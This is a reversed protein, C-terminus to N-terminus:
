RIPVTLIFGSRIGIYPAFIWGVKGDFRVQYWFDRGAQVTRNLIEIEAGWFIQGIRAARVSPRRRFNMVARTVGIVGTSNPNDLQDFVTGENPISNPDAEVLLYRGSAWGVREGAVVKYWTFGGGEDNSKALVTYNNDPRLVAIFSAGLYPGTRLSLGRVNVVRGIPGVPVPTGVAGTGVFQWQFQLIATSTLEVMGVAITHSGSTLQYQFAFQGPATQQFVIFGDIAVIIQDDIEGFFQYLGTSLFSAQTQFIVSFNDANVSAIPQGFSNTPQGPWNFHLGAPYVETAVPTPLAGTQYIANPDNYFRGVWNTGSDVQASTNETPAIIIVLLMGAM